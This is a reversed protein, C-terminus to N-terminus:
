TARAEEVMSAIVVDDELMELGLRVCAEARLISKIARPNAVSGDYKQPELVIAGDRAIAAAVVSEVFSRRSGAGAKLRAVEERLQKREELLESQSPMAM